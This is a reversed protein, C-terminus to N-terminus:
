SIFYFLVVLVVVVVVVVVARRVKPWRHGGCRNRPCDARFINRYSPTDATPRFLM